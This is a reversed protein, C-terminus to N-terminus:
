SASSKGVSLRGVHDDDVCGRHRVRQRIITRDPLDTSGLEGAIHM